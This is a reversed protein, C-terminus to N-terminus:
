TGHESAALLAMAVDFATGYREAWARTPREQERWHLAEELDFGSWLPAKSSQPQAQWQRAAAELSRYIAAAKTEQEIWASLRKWQHTLSEHSLALITEPQLPTGAPPTIFGLGPQRFIEVVEAVQSWPVAAVAAVTKVPTQRHHTDARAPSRESLCRFLAETIRQQPAHLVAFTAEAHRSLAEAFGGIKDYDVLTLTVGAAPTGDARTQSEASANAWMRMLAYQMLPLQDLASGMDNLLRNVLAPAVTGGFLRAPEVIAEQRQERTLQPTLFQGANIAEPLGRFLACDGLFDSRMILVVSVPVDRQAATTLLLEVFAEAEDSSGDQLFRFMEEFQDVCLLLNTAEPWPTERLVEVLGLPGRLLAAHLVDAAAPTGALEPGLAPAALLSQVLRQIPHQGPRMAAIRWRAGASPLLGSELAPILGAHVLSSKGCGSPGTVALFHTAGLKEVLQDIHTQRGFFIDTEDSRFPRLGPYPLAAGQASATAGATSLGGHSFTRM